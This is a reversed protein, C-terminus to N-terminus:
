EDPGDEQAKHEDIVEGLWDYALKVDDIKSVLELRTYGEAGAYPASVITALAGGLEKRDIEDQSPAEKRPRPTVDKTDSRNQEAKILRVLEHSVQCVESVERLSMDDYRPSKLAMVVANHKDANSRRLGHAVNASLAYHLADSVQGEIVDVGVSKNGLKKLAALRHFGDALIYNQSNKPAFVILPPFKAGAEIDTAYEDVVREDIKVRIQTAASADIMDLALRAM